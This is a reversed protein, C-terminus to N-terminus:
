VGRVGRGGRECGRDCEPGRGRVGGRACRECM